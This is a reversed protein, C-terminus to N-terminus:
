FYKEISLLMQKRIDQLPLSNNAKLHQIYRLFQRGEHGAPADPIQLVCESDKLLQEARITEFIRFGEAQPM